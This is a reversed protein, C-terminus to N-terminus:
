EPRCVKQACSTSIKTCGNPYPSSECPDTTCLIPEMCDLMGGKIIRLQKNTLKKGNILNQNKM